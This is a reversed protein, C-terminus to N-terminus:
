WLSVLFVSFARLCHFVLMESSNKTFGKHGRYRQPSDCFESFSYIRTHLLM